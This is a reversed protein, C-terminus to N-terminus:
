ALCEQYRWIFGRSTKLRGRCCNTISYRPFGTKRSADGTSAFRAIENGDLDYQIVPLGMTSKNLVEERNRKAQERLKDDDYEWLFGYATKSTGICAFRIAQKLVGLERAAASLGEYRRILNGDLDFQLVPIQHSKVKESNRLGISQNRRAEESLKKGRHAAASKEIWEKTHKKGYQPHNKGRMREKTAEDYVYGATGGDTCNYGYEHNSSDYKSIYHKEFANAM